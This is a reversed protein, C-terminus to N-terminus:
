CRLGMIIKKAKKITGTTTCTVVGNKNLYEIVREKYWHRSRIVVYDKDFYVIKAGSDIKRVDKIIKRIMPTNKAIIYRRRGVRDKM